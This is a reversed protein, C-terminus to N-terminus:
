SGASGIGGPATHISITRAVTSSSRFTSARDQSWLATVSRDRSREFGCFGVISFIAHAVQVGADNAFCFTRGVDSVDGEDQTRLRKDSHAVIGAFGELKETLPQASNGGCASCGSATATPRILAM